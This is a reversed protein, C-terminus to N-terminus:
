AAAPGAEEDRDPGQEDDAGLGDKTPATGPTPATRDDLTITVPEGNPTLGILNEEVREYLTAALERDGDGDTATNEISHLSILLAILSRGSLAARIRDDGEDAVQPPVRFHPHRGARTTVFEWIDRHCLLSACSVRAATKLLASHGESVQATVAEATAQPRPRLQAVATELGEIGQRLLALESRTGQVAASLEATIEGATQRLQDSLGQQYDAPGTSSHDPGTLLALVPTLEEALVERVAQRVAGMSVTPSADDATHQAPVAAILDAEEPPEDADPVAPAPAPAPETDDSHARYEEHLYSAPDPHAEPPPPVPPTLDALAIRVERLETRLQDIVNYVATNLAEGNSNLKNHVDRFNTRMRGLEDVVEKTTADYAAQGASELKTVGKDLAERISKDTHLVATHIITLTSALDPNPQRAM